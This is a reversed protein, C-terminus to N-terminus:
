QVTELNLYREFLDALILPLFDDKKVFYNASQQRETFGGLVKSVNLTEIL